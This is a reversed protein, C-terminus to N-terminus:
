GGGQWLASGRLNLHSGSGAACRGSSLHQGVAAADVGAFAVSGGSAAAQHVVLTHMAGARPGVLVEAQSLSPERRASGVVDQNTSLIAHAAARAADHVANVATGQGVAQQLTPPATSHKQLLLNQCAPQVGPLM